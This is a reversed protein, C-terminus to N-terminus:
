RRRREHRRARLAVDITASVESMRFMVQQGSFRLVTYGQSYLWAERTVDAEFRAPKTHEAAGVLEVVLSAGIVFDARYRGIVVQERFKVRRSYLYVRFLSELGSDTRLSILSLITEAARTEVRELAMRLASPTMLKLTMLSDLVAVRDATQLVTKANVLHRVADDMPMLLSGTAGHHADVTHYVTRALAPRPLHRGIALHFYTNSSPRWAGLFQFMTVSTLRGGARAAKMLTEPLQAHVYTNKRARVLIGRALLDDIVTRSIGHDMLESRSATGSRLLSILQEPLRLVLTM